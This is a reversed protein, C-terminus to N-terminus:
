GMDPYKPITALARRKAKARKNAKHLADIDAQELGQNLLSTNVFEQTRFADEEPSVVVFNGDANKVWVGLDPRELDDAM